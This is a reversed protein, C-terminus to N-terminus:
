AAWRAKAPLSGERARRIWEPERTKVLQRACEECVLLHQYRERRLCRICTM